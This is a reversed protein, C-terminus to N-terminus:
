LTVTTLVYHHAADLPPLSRAGDVELTVRYTGAPADEVPYNVNAFPGNGAPLNPRLALSVPPDLAQSDLLLRTRSEPRLSPKMAARVRGTRLGASSGASTTPTVAGLLPTVVLLVPDSEQIRKTQSVDPALPPSTRRVVVQHRGPRVTSADVVLHDASETHPVVTGDILVDVTEGDAAMLGAGFLLLPPMPEATHVPAGPGDPGAVTDLRVTTFPHAGLGITRVPLVEGPESGVEVLVPGAVVALTPGFQGPSYLAWVRTLEDVSMPEPTLRVLEADLLDHGTIEPHDTVAAELWPRTLGPYAHLAAACGALMLQTVHPNRGRFVILYHLDLAAQARTRLAGDASRHPLDSTSLAQNRSVRLLHVFVRNNDGADDLDGAAVVPRPTLELEDVAAQIMTTLTATVAAVSMANSM